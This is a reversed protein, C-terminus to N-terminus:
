IQCQGIKVIKTKRSAQKISCIEDIVYRLIRFTEPNSDPANQPVGCLFWRSKDIM